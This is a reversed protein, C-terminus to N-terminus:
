KEVKGRGEGVGVEMEEEKWEKKEIKGEHKKRGGGIEM